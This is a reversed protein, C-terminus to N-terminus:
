GLRQRRDRVQAWLACVGEACACGFLAVFLLMWLWRTWLFLFGTLGVTFPTYRKTAINIIHLLLGAFDACAVMGYVAAVYVIGPISNIVTPPYFIGFGNRLAAVGVFWLALHGVFLFAASFSGPAGPFLGFFYTVVRAGVQLIRLTGRELKKEAVDVLPEKAGKGTGPATWAKVGHSDVFRELEAFKVRQERFMFALLVTSLLSLAVCLIVRLITFLRGDDFLESTRFSISLIDFLGAVAYGTASMLAAWPNNPTVMAVPGTAWLALHPLNLLIVYSEYSSPKVFYLIALGLIAGLELLGFAVVSPFKLKWLWDAAAEVKKTSAMGLRQVRSRVYGSADMAM